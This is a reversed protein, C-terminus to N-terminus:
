SASPGRFHHKVGELNAEFAAIAQLDASRGIESASSISSTSGDIFATEIMETTKVVGDGLRMVTTM